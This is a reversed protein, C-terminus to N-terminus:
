AAVPERWLQREFRLKRRVLLMASWCCTEYYKACAILLVLGVAGFLVLLTNRLKEASPDQLKQVLVGFNKHEVPYATASQQNLQNIEARAESITVGTKLRAIAVFAHHVHETLDDNFQGVADVCRGMALFNFVAPLIGAVTYRKDDLTVTHGVVHLDGSFRGEWLPHSLLVVLASGAQDEEPVFSRGALARVGLLPFLSSSAYGVLVRRAQGEGTLNFGYVRRCLRGNGFLKESAAALRRLRGAVTGSSAGATPLHELNEILNEAAYLPASSAARKCWVSSRQTAGIGLALTLVAVVTFGPNKALTRIGYRIDQVFNELM